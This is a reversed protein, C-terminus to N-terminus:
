RCIKSHNNFYRDQISMIYNYRAQKKDKSSQWYFGSKQGGHLRYRYVVRDTYGFRLGAAAMRMSHDYEEATWMREDFPLFTARRYLITGGHLTNEVALDSVTEPIESCNINENGNPEFNIANACVFDFGEIIKTYLDLLCDPTLLDDDGLLKIYDGKAKKVANNINKSVCEDAEQIIIEYDKDLTFGNQNNASEVAYKMLGDRDGDLTPIIISVKM